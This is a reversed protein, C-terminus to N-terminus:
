GLYKATASDMVYRAYRFDRIAAIQGGILTLFVPYIGDEDRVIMAPHGDVLAPRASLIDITEYNTYYRGVRAAGTKQIRHVLDLRVDEVLQARIADFDRAIFQDVYANLQKTKAHSIQDQQAVQQNPAIRRLNERGRHLASKISGLSQDLMESVESLSYGLVDKMILASRQLPTLQLFISLAFAALEKSELPPVRDDQIPHESLPEMKIRQSRRLHDIARNHAIRFVWAEPNDVGSAPWKQFAKALADQVIDEADLVSGIMHACYRHLKPRLDGVRAEFADKTVPPGSPQSAEM